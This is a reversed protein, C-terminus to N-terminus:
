KVQVIETEYGDPDAIFYNYQHPQEVLEQSICGAERHFALSKQINEVRMGFHGYAMHEPVTGPIILLQIQIAKDESLLFVSTITDTHHVVFHESFGLMSKYFVKSRELNSVRICFHHTFYNM